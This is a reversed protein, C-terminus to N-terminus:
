RLWCPGIDRVSIFSLDELICESALCDDRASDPSLEGGKLKMLGEALPTPVFSIVM